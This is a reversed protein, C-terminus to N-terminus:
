FPGETVMFERIKGSVYLVSLRDKGVFYQSRDAGTWLSSGVSKELEERRDGARTNGAPSLPSLPGAYITEVRITDDGYVSNSLEVTADLQPYSWLETFYNYLIEKPKGWLEILNDVSYATSLKRLYISDGPQYTTIKTLQASLTAALDLYGLSRLMVLRSIMIEREDPPFGPNILFHRSLPTNVTSAPTQPVSVLSLAQSYNSAELFLMIGLNVASVPLDKAREYAAKAYTLAIARDSPSTMYLLMACSSAMESDWSYALYRTYASLAAEVSTQLNGPEFSITDKTIGIPHSLAHQASLALTQDKILAVPLLPRLPFSQFQPSQVILRHTALAELRDLYPASTYSKKLTAVSSLAEKLATSATIGQLVSRLQQANEADEAGTHSLTAMRSALSGDKTLYSSFAKPAEGKTHDEIGQKLWRTYADSTLGCLSYLIRSFRDVQGVEKTHLPGLAYVAAARAIFPILADFREKEMNRARRPNNAAATFVYEDVYDLLATTVVLRGDPYFIAEISSSTRVACNIHARFLETQRFLIFSVGDITEIWDGLEAPDAMDETQISTANAEPPPFQVEATVLGHCLICTVVIIKSVNM